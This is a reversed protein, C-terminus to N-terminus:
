ENRPKAFMVIMGVTGVIAIYLPFNTLIQDTIPFASLSSSLVTAQSISEWANSLIASVGTFVCIMIFYLLMFIPHAPVLYGTIIIAFLFGILVIFLVYDYRNSLETMTNFANVTGVTDNMQPNNLLITVVESNLYHMALFGIAFAFIVVMAIGVDRVSGKKNM